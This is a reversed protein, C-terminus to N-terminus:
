EIGSALRAASLIDHEADDGMSEDGAIWDARMHYEKVFRDYWEQGTMLESKPPDTKIPLDIPLLKFTVPKPFKGSSLMTITGDYEELRYDWYFEYGTYQKPINAVDYTRTEPHLSVYSKWVVELTDNADANARSVTCYVKSTSLDIM